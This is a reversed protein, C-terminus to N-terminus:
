RKTLQDFMIQAYDARWTCYHTAGQDDHEVVQISRYGTYDWAGGANYLNSENWGLYILLKRMMSAYGGGGCMLVIPKDRPFLDEIIRQSESFVASAQSINGDESWTIDFLTQGAYAGEVPLTQLTGIYPFPVIKFGELVIDLDPNGGISDYAAPDRLMRMDRYAVDEIGLFSDISEMNVTEDVNFSDDPGPHAAPLKRQEEGACTADDVGNDNCGSLYLAASGGVALAGTIFTRRGIAADSVKM